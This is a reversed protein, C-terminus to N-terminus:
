SLSNSAGSSGVNAGVDEVSKGESFGVVAAGDVDTGEYLGVFFGVGSGVLANGAHHTLSGVQNLPSSGALVHSQISRLASLRHPFIPFLLTTAASAHRRAQPQM